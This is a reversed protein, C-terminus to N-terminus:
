QPKIGARNIIYSISLKEREVLSGAFVVVVGLLSVALWNDFINPIVEIALNIAGACLTAISISAVYASQHNRAVFIGIGGVILCIMLSAFGTEGLMYAVGMVTAMSFGISVLAEGARKMMWSVVEVSLALAITIMPIMEAETTFGLVEFLVHQEILAGTLIFAGGIFELFGNLGDKTQMVRSGALAVGGFYLCLVGNLVTSHDYIVATRILLISSPVWLLVRCFMGELTYEFSYMSRLRRSVAFAGYAAALALISVPIVSRTPVLLLSNLGIVAPFLLTRGQRGLVTFSLWGIGTLILLSAGTVTLATSLSPATWLLYQTLDSPVSNNPMQSYLLAGLQCFNVPIAAAALVLFTRAGKNEGLKVATFVGAISLLGTVGLFKLYRGIHDVAYWGELMYTIAGALLLCSGVFRLLTAIQGTTTTPAPATDEEGMQPRICEIDPDIINEANTEM